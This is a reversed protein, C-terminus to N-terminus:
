RGHLLESENDGGDDGCGCEACASALGWNALADALALGWDDSWLRSWDGNAASILPKDEVSGAAQTDRTAPNKTQIKIHDGSAKPYSQKLSSM